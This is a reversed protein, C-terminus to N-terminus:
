DKRAGLEQKMRELAESLISRPCAINIRVFGAGEEGFITGEDLYVKADELIIRNLELGDM